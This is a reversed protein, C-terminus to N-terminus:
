GGVLRDFVSLRLLEARTLFSIFFGFGKLFFRLFRNLM